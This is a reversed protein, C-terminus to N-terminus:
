LDGTLLEAPTPRVLFVHWHMDILGPMLTRGGGNIIRTTASRDVPIPASSIKEITNGRVLVNTPGSLKDSKGDFVRVNEFLVTSPPTDQAITVSPVGCGLLLFAIVLWRFRVVSGPTSLPKAQLRNCDMVFGRSCFCGRTHAPREHGVVDFQDDAAVQTASPRIPSPM